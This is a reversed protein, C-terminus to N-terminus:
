AIPRERAWDKINGRDLFDLVDPRVGLVDCEPSTRSPAFEEGCRKRRAEVSQFGGRTFDAGHLNLILGGDRAIEAIRRRRGISNRRKQGEVSIHNKSRSRCLANQRQTFKNEAIPFGRPTGSSNSMPM